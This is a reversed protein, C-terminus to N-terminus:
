QTLMAALRLMFAAGREMQVRDVYEDPQHAQEISGPGCIVTSFGAEQFQGAEAAYPVVRPPGNDGALSRAIREAAGDPEPAFAPTLSRRVIEIGADPFRAKMEADAKGAEALFPALIPQPDMGPPCRLDFLFVCQRALINGATGGNITGITITAHAPLFPSTPDAERKLRDALESLRHMLRVAVMNASLGLHTLSSHAEHGTVTVTYTTIGKHGHVVEMMTPEGVIVAAPKPVHRAIEAIMSPAGLCGIEEDYSFALHVPRKLRGPEAFIPAAALALALFGKMDCSGRGYLRGDRETLTFPDSSWNQGDVPVVDTHGSLVVGGEAAPGLTAYLNAKRGDANPVRTAAVGLGALLGEVYEILALNSDRSTTDFAVLKALQDIATAALVETTPFAPMPGNYLTVGLSPFGDAQVQKLAVPGWTGGSCSLPPHQFM